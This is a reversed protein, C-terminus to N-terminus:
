RSRIFQGILRCPPSALAYLLARPALVSVPQHLTVSGPMIYLRVVRYLAADSRVVTAHLFM